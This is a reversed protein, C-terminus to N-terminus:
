RFEEMARYGLHGDYEESKTRMFLTELPSRSKRGYIQRINHPVQDFYLRSTTLLNVIRRNIGHLSVMTESWSRSFFFQHDLTVNLIERECEYLSNVVYDYKEEIFLCEMLNSIANKAKEYSEKSLDGFVTNGLIRRTIGYHLKM